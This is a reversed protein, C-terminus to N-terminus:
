KKRGFLLLGCCVVIILDIVLFLMTMADLNYIGIMVPISIMPIVPVILGMWIAYKKQIFILVSLTLYIVGFVLLAMLHSNDPDKFVSVLHLFGTFLLLGSVLYRITKM